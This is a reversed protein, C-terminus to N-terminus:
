EEFILDSTKADEDPPAHCPEQFMYWEWDYGRPVKATTGDESKATKWLQPEFNQVEAYLRVMRRLYCAEAAPTLYRDRFMAVSRAAIAKASNPNSSTPSESTYSTMTADLDSWDNQVPIFNQEPGSPQLLPYFHAVFHLPWPIVAASNCHTLYRLRGGWAFGETHILYQWRCHDVQKVFHEGRVDSWSKGEAAKVLDARMHPANSNGLDITGRWLAKPTKVEWAGGAEEGEKELADEVEAIQDRFSNYATVGGKVSGGAYSWGDFDPMVWTEEDSTHRDWAWVTRGPRRGTRPNPDDLTDLTFEINPLQRPDPVASIARYLNSLASGVRERRAFGLKDGVIHLNGNYLLVRVQAHTRPPENLWIAIQSTNIGGRSAHFDRARELEAYLGPFAADCQEDSLGLNRQDRESDFTWSSGHTWASDVGPAAKQGRVSFYYSLLLLFVTGGTIYWRRRPTSQWTRIM